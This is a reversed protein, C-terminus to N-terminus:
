GGSETEGKPRDGFHLVHGLIKAQAEIIEAHTECRHAHEDFPAGQERWQAAMARQAAATKNWRAILKGVDGLRKRLLTIEAHLALAETRLAIIESALVLDNTLGQGSRAWRFAATITAKVVEAPHRKPPPESVSAPAYWGVLRAPFWAGPKPRASSCPAAPRVLTM